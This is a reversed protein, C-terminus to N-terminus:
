WLEDNHKTQKLHSLVHDTCDQIAFESYTGVLSLCHRKTFLHDIRHLYMSIVELVAAVDNALVSVIAALEDGADALMAITLYDEEAVCELFDIVRKRPENKRRV